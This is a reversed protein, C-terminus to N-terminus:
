NNTCGFLPDQMAAKRSNQVLSRNKQHVLTCVALKMYSDICPKTKSLRFMHLLLEPTAASWGTRKTIPLVASGPCGLTHASLAAIKFSTRDPRRNPDQTAPEKGGIDSGGM